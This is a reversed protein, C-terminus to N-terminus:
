VGIANNWLYNHVRASVHFGENLARMAIDGAGDVQEEITAGVPMIWVPSKFGDKRFTDLAYYLDQWAREDSNVVFKLYVDGNCFTQTFYEYLVVVQPKITNDMDEGTVHFLKPSISFCLNINHEKLILGFDWFADTLKQTGNTEITINKPCNGLRIMESIVDIVAQQSLMAEGGTFALHVDNGTTENIFKGGPLMDHIKKVTDAVPEKTMFKDFSPHWSYYSDCGSKFVPLDELTKLAIMDKSKAFDDYELNWTSKDAPDPQSFGRCELNCRALRIWATMHGTFKGEGQMSYFMESYKVTKRNKM